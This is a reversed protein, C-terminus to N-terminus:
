GWQAAAEMRGCLYPPRELRRRGESQCPLELHASPAAPARGSLAVRLRAAAAEAEAAREEAVRGRVRAEQCHARLFALAEVDDRVIRVPQPITLLGLTFNVLAGVLRSSLIIM